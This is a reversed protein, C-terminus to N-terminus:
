ERYGRSRSTEDSSRWVFYLLPIALLPVLWLWQLTNDRAATNTDNPGGGVGPEFTNDETNLRNQNETGIGVDPGSDISAPGTVGAGPGIVNPDSGNDTQALATSAFISSVLLMMSFFISLIYKNM